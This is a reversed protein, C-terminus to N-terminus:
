RPLVEVGRFAAKAVQIMLAVFGKDRKAPRPERSLETGNLFVAVENGRFRVEWQNWGLPEFNGKFESPTVRAVVRSDSEAVREHVYLKRNLLGVGYYDYDSKWTALVSALPDVGREEIMRIECRVDFDGSFEKQSRIVYAGDSAEAIVLGEQVQWQPFGGKEWNTLNTGNFLPVVPGKAAGGMQKLVEEAGADGPRLLLVRRAALEATARDKAAWKRALAGFEDAYRDLIKKLEAGSVDVDALQKTAKAALAKWDAPADAAANVAATFARLEEIGPGTRGSGLLAQALGHRAPLYTADEELSRRYMKEAEEWTKAKLAQEGRGAFFEATARDARATAAVALLLALALLPRRTM